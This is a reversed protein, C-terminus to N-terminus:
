FKYYNSLINVENLQRSNIDRSNNLEKLAVIMDGKHDNNLIPGDIWTAKYIKSFGGEAIFKIDHFKFYPVFEMKGIKEHNILTYKIFDDIAKNGSLTMQEYCTNCVLFENLYDRQNYFRKCEEFKFNLM